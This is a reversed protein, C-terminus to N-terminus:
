DALGRLHSRRRLLAFRPRRHRKPTASRERRRLFAFQPRARPARLRRPLSLRIAFERGGHIPSRHEPIASPEQHRDTPLARVQSPARHQGPHQIEWLVVDLEHRDLQERELVTEAFAVLTTRHDILLTLAEAYAADMMGGVARDIERRTDEALTIPHEGVSTVIQGV